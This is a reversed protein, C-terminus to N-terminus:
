PRLRHLMRPFPITERIHELGCVWAVTREIGLGFGAHPVSGYRRLDLYWDFAEAPLQHEAIRREILALDSIREGGGIIEGYGEPALLDASLSLTEDAPDPQMYFAKAASPFRHVFVPRDFSNAIITEHPAGFDEGWELAEGAENVLKVADTYSIRPFPPIVRELATTDRGLHELERACKTLAHRVLHGIFEEALLLIDDLTAYAVEPEIMWFEILHRRTKSKEARFTPGFCVQKGFAMAMAENYLQGSQTLYVKDGFYDCEFLNTTGECAAPTFVPADGLTFGREYFFMRAAMILESRVRLIANQRQSRLWLHRNAMLFETGHEKPTIPYDVAVQHVEVADLALEYGGPSRPDAKVTGTVSLSSEQTLTQIAEWVEPAVKSQAAVCQILGTGDRVLLFELKGSSRRNYVWGRITVRQGDSQAIDSIYVTSM